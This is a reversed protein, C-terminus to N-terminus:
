RAARGSRDAERVFSCLYKSGTLSLDPETRSLGPMTEGAEGRGAGGRGAYGPESILARPGLGALSRAGSWDREKGVGNKCNFVSHFM